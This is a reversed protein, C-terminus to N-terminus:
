HVHLCPCNERFLDEKTENKDSLSHGQIIPNDLELVSHLNSPGNQLRIQLRELLFSHSQTVLQSIITTLWRMTKRGLGNGAVAYDSQEDHVVDVEDDLSSRCAGSTEDLVSAAM